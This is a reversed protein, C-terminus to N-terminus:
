LESASRGATANANIEPTRPESNRKARYVDLETGLRYTTAKRAEGEKWGGGEAVRVVHGNDIAKHLLRGVRKELTGRRSPHLQYEDLFTWRAVWSWSLPANGADVPFMLDRCQFLLNMANFIQKEGATYGDLVLISRPHAKVAGAEIALRALWINAEIAPHGKKSFMWHRQRHDDLFGLKLDVFLQVVPVMEYGEPEDSHHDFFAYGGGNNDFSMSAKRDPPHYPCSFNKTTRTGIGLMELLGQVLLDSKLLTGVRDKLSSAQWEQGTADVVGAEDVSHRLVNPIPPHLPTRTNATTALTKPCIRELLLDLLPLRGEEPFGNAFEYVVGSQQVSPPVLVFGGEGRVEGAPIYTTRLPRLSRCYIHFGKVTRVVCDPPVDALLQDVDVVEPHDIDLVYVGSKAGTFGGINLDPDLKFMESLEAESVSRNYYANPHDRVRGDHKWGKVGRLELSIDKNFAKSKAGLAVLWGDFFRLADLAIEFRETIERGVGTVALFLSV